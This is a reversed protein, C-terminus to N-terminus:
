LWGAAVATSSQSSVDLYLSKFGKHHGDTEKMELHSTTIFVSIVCFLDLSSNIIINIPCVATLYPFHLEIGANSSVPM